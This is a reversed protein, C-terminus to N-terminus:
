GRGFDMSRKIDLPALLDDYFKMARPLDHTGITVCGIM